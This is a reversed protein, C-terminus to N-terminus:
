PTSARAQKRPADLVSRAKRKMAASEGSSAPTPTIHQSVPPASPPPAQAHVVGFTDGLTLDVRKGTFADFSGLSLNSNYTDQAFMTNVDIQCDKHARRRIDTNCRHVFGSIIGIKTNDTGEKYTPCELLARVLVRRLNGGNNVLQKAIDVQKM